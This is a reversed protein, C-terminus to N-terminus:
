EIGKMEKKMKERDVELDHMTIGGCGNCRLWVTDTDMGSITIIKSGCKGCGNEVANKKIGGILVEGTETINEIVKKRKGLDRTVRELFRPYGVEPITKINKLPKYMGKIPKLKDVAEKFTVKKKDNKENM